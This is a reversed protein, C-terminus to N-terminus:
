CDGGRGSNGGIGNSAAFSICVRTGELDDPGLPDEVMVLEDEPTVAVVTVVTLAFLLAVGAGGNGKGLGLVPIM